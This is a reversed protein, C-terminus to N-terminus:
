AMTLPFPETSGRRSYKLYWRLKRRSKPLVQHCHQTCGHWQSYSNIRLSPTLNWRLRKHILRIATPKLLHCPTWSWSLSRKISRNMRECGWNVPLKKHRRPKKAAQTMQSKVISNRQHAESKMTLKPLLIIRRLTLTKLISNCVLCRGTLGLRRRHRIFTSKTPRTAM